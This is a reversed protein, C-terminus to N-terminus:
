LEQSPIVQKERMKARKEKSKMGGLRGIEKMHEKGHKKVNAKGGMKGFASALVSVTNEEMPSFLHIVCGTYWAMGNSTWLM